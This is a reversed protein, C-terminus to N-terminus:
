PVRHAAVSDRRARLDSRITWLEFLTRAMQLTSMKSGRVDSWKRLPIEVLDHAAVGPVGPAGVRLRGLLELDFAWPSHFPEAIARALAPTNRFLKAGCQTDYFPQALILSAM